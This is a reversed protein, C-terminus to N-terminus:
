IWCSQLLVYIVIWYWLVELESIWQMKLAWVCWWGVCFDRWWREDDWWWLVWGALGGQGGWWCPRKVRTADSHLYRACVDHPAGTTPVLTPARHSWLAVPCGSKKRTTARVFPPTGQTSPHHDRYISTELFLPVGLDDTKCPNEMLFWGNQPVKIKPFVWIPPM